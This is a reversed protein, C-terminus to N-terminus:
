CEQNDVRRIAFNALMSNTRYHHLPHDTGKLRPL